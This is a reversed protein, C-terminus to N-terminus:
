TSLSWEWEDGLVWGLASMRGCLLGWEFDDLVLEEIPYKDEIEEARQIAVEPIDDRSNALVMHRNWWVKEEFEDHARSVDADNRRIMLPWFEGPLQDDPIWEVTNGDSDLGVEHGNPGTEVKKDQKSM